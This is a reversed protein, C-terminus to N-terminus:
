FIVIVGRAELRDIVAKTRVPNGTLDVYRLHPLRDLFAVDDIENASLDLEKLNVLGVLADADELDNEALDLTELKILDKLPYVNDLNNRSLNLARLSRCWEVGELDHLDYDSLDLEGDLRVLVEADLDVERAGFLERKVASFFTGDPEGDGEFGVWWGEDFDEYDGAEDREDFDQDFDLEPGPGRVPESHVRLLQVIAELDRHDSSAWARDIRAGIVSLRDPHFVQITKMFVQHPTQGEVAIGAQRAYLLVQGPLHKRHASILQASIVRLRDEVLPKQRLDAVSLLSPIVPRPYCLWPRSSQFDGARRM